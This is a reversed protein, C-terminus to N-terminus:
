LHIDAEADAKPVFELFDYNQDGKQGKTFELTLVQEGAKLHVRALNPYVDWWHVNHTAKSFSIPGSIDKDNIALRIQCNTGISTMHANVQYDGTQAVQVTYKIWEGEYIWGVYPLGTKLPGVLSRHNHDVVGIDVGENV